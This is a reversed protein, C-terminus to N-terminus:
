FKNLNRELKKQEAKSKPLNQITTKGNCAQKKLKKEKAQAQAKDLFQEDDATWEDLWNKYFVIYVNKSKQKTGTCHTYLNSM